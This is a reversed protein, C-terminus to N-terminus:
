RGGSRRCRSSLEPGAGLPGWLDNNLAFFAPKTSPTAVFQEYLVALFEEGVKEEGSSDPCERPSGSRCVVSCAQGVPRGEKTTTGGAYLHM